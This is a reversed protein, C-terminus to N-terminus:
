AAKREALRNRADTLAGDITAGIGIDAALWGGELEVSFHEVPVLPEARLYGIKRIGRERMFQEIATAM